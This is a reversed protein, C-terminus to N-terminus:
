LIAVAPLLAFAPTSLVAFLWTYAETGDPVDVRPVIPGVEVLAYQGGEVVTVAALVVAFATAPGERSLAISKVSGSNQVLCAREVHSEGPKAACTGFLEALGATAVLLM